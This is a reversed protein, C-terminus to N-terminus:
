GLELAKIVGQSVDLWIGAAMKETLELTYCFDKRNKLGFFFFIRLSSFSLCPTQESSNKYSYKEPVALSIDDLTAYIM